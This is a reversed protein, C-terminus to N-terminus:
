LEGDYPASRLELCTPSNWVRRLVVLPTRGAGIIDGVLFDSHPSKWEIEIDGADPSVVDTVQVTIQEAEM